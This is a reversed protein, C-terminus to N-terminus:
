RRSARYADVWRQAFLLTMVLALCAATAATNRESAQLALAVFWVMGATASLAAGILRILVTGTALGAVGFVGGVICFVGWILVVGNGGRQILSPSAVFFSLVGSIALVAYATLACALPLLRRLRVWRKAAM